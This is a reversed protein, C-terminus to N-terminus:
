AKIEMDTQYEENLRTIVREAVSQLQSLRAFITEVNDATASVHRALEALGRAGTRQADKALSELAHQCADHDGLDIAARLRRLDDQIDGTLTGVMHRINPNGPRDSLTALDGKDITVSESTPSQRMLEPRGTGARAM